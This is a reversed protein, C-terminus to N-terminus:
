AALLCVASSQSVFYRCNYLPPNSQMHQQSHVRPLTLLQSHCACMMKIVHLTWGALHARRVAAAAALVQDLPLDETAPNVDWDEPVEHLPLCWNPKLEFESVQGDLGQFRCPMCVSCDTRGQAQVPLLCSM